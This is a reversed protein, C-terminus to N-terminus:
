SELDSHDVKKLIARSAATRKFRSNKIGAILIPEIAVMLVIGVPTGFAPHDCRQGQLLASPIQYRSYTRSHHWAGASGDSLSSACSIALSASVFMVAIDFSNVNGDYPM